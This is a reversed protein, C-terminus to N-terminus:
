AISWTRGVSNKRTVNRKTGGILRMKRDRRSAFPPAFLRVRNAMM